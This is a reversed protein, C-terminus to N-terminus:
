VDGPIGRNEDGSGYFTLVTDGYKAERRRKLSGADQPMAEKKFHECIVLYSDNLIVYNSLYLLCKRLLGSHYPPDLFVIDFRIKSDSLKKIAKIADNKFIDIRSRDLSLSDINKKIAGTCRNNIDVFVTKGAGRSIAEIGIAGSGAFLELFGAGRIRGGIISFLAERVKDSTPRINVGKPMDIHRGKFEGGIIKM